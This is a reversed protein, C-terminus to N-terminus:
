LKAAVERYQGQDLGDLTWDGIRVRVM